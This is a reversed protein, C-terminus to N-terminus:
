VLEPHPDLGLGGQIAALEFHYRANKPDRAVARLMAQLALNPRGARAQCLAIVEYPEPRISLLRISDSAKSTAKRCNGAHLADFAANSSRQSAFVLGPAIAAVILLLAILVASRSAVPRPYRTSAHAALAAGGLAIFPVTVAPMEWDWDIAAHVAWTLATAFVAAYLSRNPGRAVPLMSALVAVVFVVILLFGLIGLEALTELYLSHADVVYYTAQKAPRHQNWYVEFTGSGQGHLPSDRFADLAVSWNDVLGRNSSSFVSQRVDQQPAAQGSNVFRHYQDSIKSPANIAAAVALVVIVLTVSAGVVVPRRSREPLSYGALRTDLPTLALRVIMAAGVCLAVVLAVRHGQATAAASHAGSTLLSHQYASAVAVVSTPVVALAGTIFGRPRAILLFTGVGIIAAAVPGRSLTLYVTTALIPLAGAAIVRAARPLRASTAFYLAPIAGLVCLIGLANSYTLPYNLNNENLAPLTIPFRDPALRTALAGVAVVVVGLAIGGVMVRLRTSTRAITGSLVLLLLYAFARDYELMARASADSWLASLLIWVAFLGLSGAAIALPMSFGAFPEDVLTVRVVLVVVLLIAAIAPTDAFYGGENFSLYVILAGPLLLLLGDVAQALTFEAASERTATLVLGAGCVVAIVALAAAGAGGARAAFYTGLAGAALLLGLAPLRTNVGRTM